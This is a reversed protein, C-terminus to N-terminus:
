VIITLPMNQVPHKKLIPEFTSMSPELNDNASSEILYFKNVDRYYHFTVKNPSIKVFGNEHDHIRDCVVCHSPENRRYNHIIAGGVTTKNILTFSELFKYNTKNESNNIVKNHKPPQIVVPNSEFQFCSIKLNSYSVYQESEYNQFPRVLSDEFLLNENDLVLLGSGDPKTSGVFRLGGNKRVIQKDVFKSADCYNFRKNWENTFYNYFQHSMAIWNEFLLGKVTLHKSIKKPNNSSSWVFILENTVVESYLIQCVIKIVFETDTKWKNIDFISSEPVLDFDFCLRGYRRQINSNDDSDLIIEHMYGYNKREALFEEFSAFLIYKYENKKFNGVIYSNADGFQVAQNLKYFSFGM